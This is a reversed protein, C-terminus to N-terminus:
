HFIPMGDLRYNVIKSRDKIFKAPVGAVVTYPAVDKTVVSGAGVVAGEGITVGALILSRTGIWVNDEVAVYFYDSDYNRHKCRICCPPWYRYRKSCYLLLQPRFHCGGNGHLADSCNSFWSRNIFTPQELHLDSSCM